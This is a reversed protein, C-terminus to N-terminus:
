HLMPLRSLKGIYGENMILLSDKEVLLIYLELVLRGRMDNCRTLTDSYSISDGILAAHAFTIAKWYLRRDHNALFREGSAPYVIGIM